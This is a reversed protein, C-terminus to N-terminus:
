TGGEGWDAQARSCPFAAEESLGPAVSSSDWGPVAQQRAGAASCGGAPARDASCPAGAVGHSVSHLEKLAGPSGARKALANPLCLKGQPPEAICTQSQARFTCNPKATPGLSMGLFRLCLQTCGACRSLILGPVFTFCSRLQVHDWGVQIKDQRRQQEAVKRALAQKKARLEKIDM